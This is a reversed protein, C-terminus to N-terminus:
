NTAHAYAKEGANIALDLRNEPPPLPCTAFSTFACPPNYSRNFDLTVRGQADPKPADLFRGAGYSGHGSTRDAFVLFLEDGGEDLAELRFTRGEREFEVVGPNPVEDTTGIINAIAITKGAPHAVFHGTVKWKSDLPWYDIGKFGTRTAADAHKVRLAYRDGRKIVTAVGKGEDFGLKSPGAPDDDSRLAATGTLPAGDLTLAAGREPVFRMQGSKMHLLGLHEPGLALRVGNDADSGIYHSGPDIWHLGILSTWGDPQTLKAVREDRWSKEEAAFAAERAAAQAAAKLQEADPESKGCAALAFLLVACAARLTKPAIATRTPM